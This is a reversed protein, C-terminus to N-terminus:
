RRFNTRRSGEKAPNDQRLLHQSRRGHFFQIMVVLKAGVLRLPPNHYYRTGDGM